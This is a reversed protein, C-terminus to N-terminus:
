GLFPSLRDVMLAEARGKFSTVVKCGVVGIGSDSTAVKVLEKLWNKDVETDNNLFVLYKGAACKSGINNGLAFGVNKPNVVIKLRPDNGFLNNV